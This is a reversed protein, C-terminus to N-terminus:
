RVRINSLESEMEMRTVLTPCQMAAVAANSLPL